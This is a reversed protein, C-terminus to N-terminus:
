NVAVLQLHVLRGSTGDIRVALQAVRTVFSLLQYLSLTYVTEVKSVQVWQTSGRGAIGGLIGM